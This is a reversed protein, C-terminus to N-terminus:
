AEDARASIRRESGGCVAKDVKNRGERKEVKGASTQARPPVLATGVLKADQAIRVDLRTRRKGELM